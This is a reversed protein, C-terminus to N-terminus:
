DATKDPLLRSLKVGPPSVFPTVTPPGPCTSTYTDSFPNNKVLHNVKQDVKCVLSTTVGCRIDVFGVLFYFRLKYRDQYKFVVGVWVLKAASLEYTIVRITSVYQRAIRNLFLTLFM